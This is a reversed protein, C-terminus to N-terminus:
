PIRWQSFSILRQQQAVLAAVATARDCQEFRIWDGPALQGVLTLDASIVMAGRPYGGTTQRDAMLLIPHGSPLMQVTGCPTAASLMPTDDVLVLPPGSLRYGMRNSEAGITFRTTMLGALASEGCRAGDDDTCSSSMARVRAGGDPLPFPEVPADRPPTWGKVPGLALRDGVRLPRGGLGGFGSALDTSRSGLVEPVDIGGAVGVYARAGAGRGGFRLVSGTRASCATAMPVGVGDLYLEFEAGTVAFRVDGRFELTPGALTVELTACDASNGVALNALQHSLDDMPGVVPVGFSQCGWRGRDQVTTLLGPELVRITV